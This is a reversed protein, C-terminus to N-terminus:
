GGIYLIQKRENSEREKKYYITTTFKMYGKNDQLMSNLMKHYMREVRSFSVDLLHLAEEYELAVFARDFTADQFAKGQYDLQGSRGLLHWGERPYIYLGTPPEPYYILDVRIFKNSNSLGYMLQM